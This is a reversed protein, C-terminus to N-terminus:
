TAQKTLTMVQKCVIGSDNNNNNDYNNSKDHVNDIKNITAIIIM